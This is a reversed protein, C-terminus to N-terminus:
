IEPRHYKLWRKVDALRGRAIPVAAANSLLLVPNGDQRKRSTVAKKAVWHSRHCQIGDAEDCLAVFDKLAGRLLFKTQDFVFELYHEQSQVHLLSPLHIDREEFRITDPRPAPDPADDQGTAPTDGKLFIPLISTATLLEVLAAILLNRAFDPWTLNEILFNSQTLLNLPFTSAFIAGVTAIAVVPYNIVAISIRLRYLILHIARILLYWFLVGLYVGILWFLIRTLYPAPVAFLVPRYSAIAFAALIFTGNMRASILLRHLVSWDCRVRTGNIAIVHMENWRATNAPTKM